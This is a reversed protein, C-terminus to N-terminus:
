CARVMPSFAVIAVQATHGEFTRIVLGSNLDWLKATKDPAGTLARSADPSLAVTSVPGITDISRLMKGNVLDWVILKKDAGGSLARTGDTTVAVQGV